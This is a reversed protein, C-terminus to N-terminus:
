RRRRLLALLSLGGLLAASPEPIVVIQLSGSQFYASRGGGLDFANGLGVNSVGSSLDVGSGTLLTYTGNAASAYDWGLIDTFTFNAFTVAGTIALPDALNVTLNAGAGFNLSGAISGSGGITGESGVSVATNGLAGNVLLTGASVTTAGTYTSTGSLTLTGGGDKTLGGIGRLEVGVGVHHVATDFTTTADLKAFNENGFNAGGALRIFNEENQTAVIKTGNFHIYGRDNLWPTTTSNSAIWPTVLTGGNLFMGSSGRWSQSTVGGNVRVEATGSITFAEGPNGTVSFNLQNMTVVGGTFSLGSIGEVNLNLNGNITTNGGSFITSGGNANVTGITNTGSFNLTGASVTTSGNYTNNGSLALTGDGTKTIGYTGGFPSIAIGGTVNLTSDSAVGISRNDNLRLESSITSTAANGASLNSSLLLNGWSGNGTGYNNGLSSVTGGNLTLGNKIETVGASTSLAAGNSVTIAGTMGGGGWPNGTVWDGGALRLTGASVAIAGTIDSPSNLFLTGGGTKTIGNSGHLSFSQGPGANNVFTATVGSAVDINGTTLTLSASYGATGPTTGITYNKSSFSMNGVNYNQSEWVAAGYNTGGDYSTGGGDFVVDSGNVYNSANSNWNNTWNTWSSWGTGGANDTGSWTLTTAQLHGGLLAASGAILISNLFPNSKQKM